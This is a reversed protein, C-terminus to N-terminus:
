KGRRGGNTFISIELRIKFFHKGSALSAFFDDINPLPHQDVRLAPNTTVRFDGCITIKGNPKPM